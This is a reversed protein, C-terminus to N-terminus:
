PCTSGYKSAITVLDYINIIGWLPAVDADSNWNPDEETSDYSAAALSVDYIDVIGDGNVDGIIKIKVFGDIYINNELDLEYPVPSAEAKITYNNCPQLGTTNWQFILTMNTKPPLDFITQTGIENDGYYATVNFTEAMDGLNAAVVTVNVIRGPYTANTSTEVYTIAVDRTLTAFFGDGVEHPIEEGTQKVIKTDHLDLVTFGFSEVMFYMTAITKPSMITKPDAPPHYTVNVKIEGITDDASVMTEFNTDNDPPTIVIGLFTIVTTDYALSFEYGYFDIINEMKIDIQFRSGPTLTPNIIEPPDVYMRSLLINNFYGDRPESYPINESWPDTLTVNYLDLSTEGINTVHFKISALTVSGTIPTSAIAAVRIKGEPEFLEIDVPPPFVPNVTVEAVNLITTNYALWFEFSYLDAVKEINVDVTFNNCPSLSSDVIAAPDVLIDAESPVYNDFYGNEVDHAIPNGDVDALSSSFIELFCRGVGIVHFTMNFAIGTGDFAPAPSMSAYALWYTGETANVDDKILMGPEHLIGDPYDEVPIKATHGVYELITPDWSFRIDVGYLDTVNDVVINVTFTQSPALDEILPPDVRVVPDYVAPADQSHAQFVTISSTVFFALLLSCIIKRFM